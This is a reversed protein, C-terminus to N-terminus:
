VNLSCLEGNLFMAIDLLCRSLKSLLNETDRRNQTLIYLVLYFNLSIKTLFIIIVIVVCGINEVVRNGEETTCHM